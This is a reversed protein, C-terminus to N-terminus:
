KKDPKKEGEKKKTRPVSTFVELLSVRNMKIFVKKGEESTFTLYGTVGMAEEVASYFDSPKGSVIYDKIVVDSFVVRLNVKMEGDKSGELAM